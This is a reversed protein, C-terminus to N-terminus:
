KPVDIISSPDKIKTQVNFSFSFYIKMQIQINKLKTQLQIQIIPCIWIISSWYYLYKSFVVLANSKTYSPPHLQTPCNERFNFMM